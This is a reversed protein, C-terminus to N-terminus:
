QLQRKFEVDFSQRLVAQFYIGTLRDQDSDYTLTYTSGPYNPAQLKVFVQLKGGKQTWEAHEVHIPRPNFYAATLEGAAGVASLQLVYGGDPRLWKGELVSPPSNVAPSSAESGDPEAFGASCFSLLVIVGMAGMLVQKGIKM